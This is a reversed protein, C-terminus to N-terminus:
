IGSRGLGDEVAHAGNKRHPPRADDAVVTTALARERTNRRAHQRRIATRYRRMAQDDRIALLIRGNRGVPELVERARPFLRGHTQADIQADVIVPGPAVVRKRATLLLTQLNGHRKPFVGVHEDHVLRGVVHIDERAVGNEFRKCTITADPQENGM